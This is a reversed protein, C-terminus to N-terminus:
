LFVKTSLVPLRSERGLGLAPQEGVTGEGEGELCIEMGSSKQYDGVAEPSARCSFYSM